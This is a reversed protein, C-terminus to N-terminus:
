TETTFSGDWGVCRSQKEEGHKNDEASGSILMVEQV